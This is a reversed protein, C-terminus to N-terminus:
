RLGTIQNARPMPSHQLLLRLSPSKRTRRLHKQIRPGSVSSLFRVQAACLFGAPKMVLAYKTCPIHTFYIHFLNSTSTLYIHLAHWTSTFHIHLPRTPCTLHMDVAHRTSRINVHLSFKTSTFHSHLSHLTFTVRINLAYWHSSFTFPINVPYM